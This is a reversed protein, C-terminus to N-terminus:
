TDDHSGAANRVATLIMDDSIVTEDAGREELSTEAQTWALAFGATAAIALIHTHVWAAPQPIGALHAAVEVRQRIHPNNGIQWITLLDSM